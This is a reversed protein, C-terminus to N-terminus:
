DRHVCGADEIGGTCIPLFLWRVQVSVIAIAEDGPEGGKRRKCYPPVPVLRCSFMHERQLIRMCLDVGKIVEFHRRTLLDYISSHVM